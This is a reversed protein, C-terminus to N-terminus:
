PWEDWPEDDVGPDEWTACLYHRTSLGQLASGIALGTCALYLHNGEREVNGVRIVSAAHKAGSLWVARSSNAVAEWRDITFSVRVRNAQRRVLCAQGPGLQQCNLSKFTHRGQILVLDGAQVVRRLFGQDLDDSLNFITTQAFVAEVIERMYDYLLIGDGGVYLFPAQLHGRSIQGQSDVWGRSLLLPFAYRRTLDIQLNRAMELIRVHNFWWWHHGDVRTADLIAKPDLHRVEEEWKEKFARLQREGLNQELGGIRHAQAHHELCLVALNDAGHDRSQAWPLIHHLVIAREFTRCVCCASRNAWLVQVLTDFPIPPRGGERVAEILKADLGLNSLAEDDRRRLDTLTLGIERIRNALASDFGRRMLGAVTPNVRAHGRGNGSAAPWDKDQDPDHTM